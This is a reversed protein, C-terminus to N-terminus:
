SVEWCCYGCNGRGHAFQSRHHREKQRRCDSLVGCQSCRRRRGPSCSPKDTIWNGSKCYHIRSVRLRDQMRDRCWGTMSHWYKVVWYGKLYKFGIQGLWPVPSLPGLISMAQRLNSVAYHWQKDYLMNFSQSLAFMGMIDFSFWYAYSSFPVPKGDHAALRILGELKAAHEIMQKEYFPLATIVHAERFFSIELQPSQSEGKASLAQTWVRRRQDHFAKNRITTVGMDPMLFDYWASKTNHNGPGDLKALADPHFVTVENPGEIKITLKSVNLCLGFRVLAFM